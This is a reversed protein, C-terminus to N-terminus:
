LITNELTGAFVSPAGREFERGAEIAPAEQPVPTSASPFAPKVAAEWNPLMTKRQERSMLNINEDEYISDDNYHTTSIEEFIAGDLTSFKHWQNEKVLLTDGPRLKTLKGEVVVELDGFLLQFTEEKKRHM